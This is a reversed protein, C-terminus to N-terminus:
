LRARAGTKSRLTKAIEQSKRVMEEAHELAIPSPRKGALMRAVEQIREDRELAKVCTRTRGGEVQKYVYFHTDAMSAIQPLHTVCIVQRRTSLTLLKEGVVQGTRGGIGADIEDFVLTPIADAEALICRLALMIRSLEGGSAVKALPRPPEGPNASLLFEVADVGRGTVAIRRGDIFLGHPDERWDMQVRFTARPMDLSSLEAIVERELERILERRRQSLVLCAERLKEEVEELQAELEAIREDSRMLTSLERSIEERYRLIEEVTEGYKRKLTRILELREAVTALRGPDTEVSDAYQRLERALEVINQRIEEVAQVYKSLSPDLSAGERLSALARAVSDIAANGDAEYLRGYAELILRSLREAHLLRTHLLRLEEEENPELRAADIEQLQFSLLDVRRAREREGLRLSELEHRIEQWERYLTEVRARLALVEQGGYGDLFDLHTSPSLLRQGEHQGHIEVLEAGVERLMGATAARGNIYGRSRGGAAIERVLVVEEGEVDIGMSALREAAAPSDRLDFRGEIVAEEEGSRIMEASVRGGLLAVLADVVISKGAGTEGTLLNLGRGFRIALADIIAFNRIRLETLM